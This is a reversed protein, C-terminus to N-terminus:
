LPKDSEGRILDQFRDRTRIVKARRGCVLVEAPRSRTNYNSSLAFGYAGASMVALLEKAKVIPMERDHAFFDGSECIPGVVDAKWKGRRTLAVAQIGHYSGYLSPRMLDSMGADVVIFNKRGMQKTLVVRTILVGANGVIVRGPELVLTCDLDRVLALVARAYDGPCPPEEDHYVIGLGGGLDLHQVDVGQARLDLFIGRLRRLATLFPEISTIQSGIHCATGTIRLHSSRRARRYIEISDEISIGFKHHRSGTAIYPHTGSDVGPNVRLAFNATKGLAQARAELMKIEAASEVNFQLIGRSLGFDIEDETKGVGSFIIKKPDAGAALARRLEGVSVVDFGAGLTRFLSLIALNSNAKVAYCTLHPQPAFAEDFARFQQDFASQSYLYFPTGTRRALEAVPVDECFLKGNKYGFPKL